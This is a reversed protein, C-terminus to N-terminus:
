PRPEQDKDFIAARLQEFQEQTMVHEVGSTRNMTRHNEPLRIDPTKHPRIRDPLYTGIISIVSLGVVIWSLQSLTLGWTFLAHVSIIFSLVGVALAGSLSTTAKIWNM